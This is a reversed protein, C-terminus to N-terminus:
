PAEGTVTVTEEVGSPTMQFGVVATQGVLLELGSRSVARFGQLDASIRYTGIRVALRYIGREDTVGVFVNGSSEHVATITVGPLVGGTADTVTGSLAAEQAHGLAPLAIIAGVVVLWSVASSRM